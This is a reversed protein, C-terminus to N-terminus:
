KQDPDLQACFADFIAYAERSDGSLEVHRIGLTKRLLVEITYKGPSPWYKLQVAVIQSKDVILGSVTAWKSTKTM